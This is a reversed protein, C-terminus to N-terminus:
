AHARSESPRFPTVNKRMAKQLVEDKPGFARIEGDVLWMLKEVHDIAQRRHEIVVCTANRKKLNEIANAVAVYGEGDLNTYPEDLVVLVPDGYLARALGLRQRQGASIHQGRDGIETEYGKPFDSIMEHIGAARAAKVIEESSADEYFRSINQAATGSFLQVEQPLFGIHRGLQNPDWHKINFHDFKVEGSLAPEVGVIAQSLTSKGAASPGLVGLTDGPSLQFSVGKLVPQKAGGPRCYLKEVVLDGDPSPLAMREDIGTERGVFKRLRAYAESTLIFSKWSGTIVGIPALARGAIISAAIMVGASVEGSIALYAGMGLIASQLFLRTASSIAAISGTWDSAITGSDNAVNLLSAWRKRLSGRMGMADTAEPNQLAARALRDAAGAGTQSVINSHRSVRENLYALALLFLTGVVAVVGLYFHLFFIVALFFPTWPVDFVAALGPSGIFQKIRQLDTLSQNASAGITKARDMSLDFVVDSLQEEFARGARSLIAKRALDILAMAAYLGLVLASIVFLTEYSRSALVRDYVQLMYLPGTLMLLNVFLSLIAAQVFLRKAASTATLWKPKNESFGNAM